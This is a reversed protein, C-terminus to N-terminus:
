RRKAQRSIAQAIARRTNKIWWRVELRVGWYHYEIFEAIFRLPSKYNHKSPM